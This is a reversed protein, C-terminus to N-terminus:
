HLSSEQRIRAHDAASRFVPLLGGSSRTLVTSSHWTAILIGLLFLARKLNSPSGPLDTRGTGCRAQTVTGFGSKAYTPTYLSISRNGTRHGSLSHFVSSGSRGHRARASAPHNRRSISLGSSEARPATCSLLRIKAKDTMRLFLELFCIGVLQEVALSFNDRLVTKDTVVGHRVRCPM